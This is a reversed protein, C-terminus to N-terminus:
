KTGLSSASGLLMERANMPGAGQLPSLMVPGSGQAMVAPPNGQPPGAGQLPSNGTEAQTKSSAPQDLKLTHHASRAHTSEVPPTATPGAAPAGPLPLALSGTPSQAFAATCALVGVATSICLAITRMAVGGLDFKYGLATNSESAMGTWEPENM